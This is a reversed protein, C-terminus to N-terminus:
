VTPIALTASAAVSVLVPVAAMVKKPADIPPDFGSSKRGEEPHVAESFGPAEQVTLTRNAGAAAPARLAVSRIVVLALPLGCVTVSEPVPVAGGSATMAGADSVKADRIMLVVLAAWVTVSVAEPLPVSDMLPTPMLPSKAWVFLQPAVKAPPELQVILTVKLGAAVPARLPASVKVVLAVPLGCVTVSEPVPVSKERAAAGDFTVTLEPCSAM